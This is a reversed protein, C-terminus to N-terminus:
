DLKAHAQCLEAGAQEQNNQEERKHLTIVLIKLINLNKTTQIKKKSKFILLDLIKPNQELCSNEREKIFHVAQFM